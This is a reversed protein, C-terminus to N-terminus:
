LDAAVSTVVTRSDSKRFIVRLGRGRTVYVDDYGSLTVARDGDLVNAKVAEIVRDLQERDEGVLSSVMNYAPNGIEIDAM